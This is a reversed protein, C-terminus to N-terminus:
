RLARMGGAVARNSRVAWEALVAAFVALSGPLNGLEAASALVGATRSRAM